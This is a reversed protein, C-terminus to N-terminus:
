FLTAPTVRGAPPLASPINGVPQVALHVCMTITDRNAIDPKCDQDSFVRFDSPIKIQFPLVHGQIIKEGRLLTGLPM